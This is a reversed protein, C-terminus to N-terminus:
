LLVVAAAVEDHTAEVLDAEFAVRWAARKVGEGADLGGAEGFLFEGDAQEFLLLDGDDGAGGEADVAGTVHAGAEGGAVVLEDGGAVAHLTEDVLSAFGSGGCADRETRGGNGEGGHGTGYGDDASGIDALAAEEIAQRPFADGDDVVLGADGAVDDRGLDLLLDSSCV